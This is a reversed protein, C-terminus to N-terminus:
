ELGMKKLLEKYRPDSRLSEFYPWLTITPLDYVHEEYAKELMEFAKDKDGLGTYLVAIRL